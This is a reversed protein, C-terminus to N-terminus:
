GNLNDERSSLKGDEMHLIASAFEYIRADHTVIIIARQDNLLENRVFSLINRGSDGDLSATPEDLILIDPQSIM